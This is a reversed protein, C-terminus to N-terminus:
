VHARGIEKTKATEASMRNATGIVTNMFVKLSDDFGKGANGSLTLTLPGVAEAGKVLVLAHTKSSPNKDSAAKATAYANKVAWPYYKTEGATEGVWARRIAVVSFAAQRAWVGQVEDGGRFVHSTEKWGAGVLAAGIAEAKERQEDTQDSRGSTVFLFGGTYGLGDKLASLAPNGNIWQIIPFSPTSVGGMETIGAGGDTASPDFEYFTETTM